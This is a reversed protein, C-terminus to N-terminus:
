RDAHGDEGWPRLVGRAVEGSNMDAFATNVDELEYRRTVLQDLPLRGEAYLRLIMPMDLAPHSSGYLSGTVIRESRSLEQGPLSVTAGVPPIGVAVIMGGPRTAAFALETLRTLGAAEFAYDVGGGSLDQLKDFLDPDNGDLAHTAGLALALARKSGVPEVSIIMEAGALRAGMIASLGVGGAGFVAVSSGPTVKARNIVAGIGTMVACGVLAAVELDAGPPLIICSRASVVADRAFTSLYSYHNIPRGGRSLRTGGGPLTGAMDRVAVECLSLRGELCRRCRGCHPLWSLVVRDGVAVTTVDAGIEEVVGAGEHGLVAPLPSPASGSVANWDSHCVGSAEIRVRVEGSGPPALEVDQVVLASGVDELVAARTVFAASM